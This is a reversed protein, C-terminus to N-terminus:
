LVLFISVRSSITTIPTITDSTTTVTSNFSVVVPYQTTSTDTAITVADPVLLTM